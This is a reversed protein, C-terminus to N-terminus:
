GVDPDNNQVIMVPDVATGNKLSETRCRSGVVRHCLFRVVLLIAAAGATLTLINVGIAGASSWSRDTKVKQIGRSSQTLNIGPYSQIKPDQRLEVMFLSRMPWGASTESVQHTVLFLPNAESKSAIELRSWGFGKLGYKLNPRPWDNPVYTPWAIESTSLRPIYDHQLARDILHRPLYFSWLVGFVVSLLVIAMLSKM